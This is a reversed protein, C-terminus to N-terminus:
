VLRIPFEDKDDFEYIDRAKIFEKALHNNEDLMAILAQMVKEDLEVLDKRRTMTRIINKVENAIDFIYLQTFQPPKGELSLMSGITHHNQGDIRFTHPGSGSMVSTVVKAGISTMALLSNYVNINDRFHTSELLKSLVDFTPRIELLIVRKKVASRTSLNDM